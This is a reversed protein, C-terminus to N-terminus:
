SFHRSFHLMDGINLRMCDQYDASMHFPAGVPYVTRPPQM